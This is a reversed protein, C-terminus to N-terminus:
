RGYKKNSWHMFGANVSGKLESWLLDSCESCFHAENMFESRTEWGDEYLNEIEVGYCDYYDEGKKNIKKYKQKIKAAPEYLGWSCTIIAPFKCSAHQCKM